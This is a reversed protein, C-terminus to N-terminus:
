GVYHGQPCTDRGYAVPRRCTPCTRVEPSKGRLIQFGRKAASGAEGIADEAKRQSARNGWLRGM